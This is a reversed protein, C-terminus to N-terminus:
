RDRRGTGRRRRSIVWVGITALLGASAPEPASTSAPTVSITDVGIYDSNDGSPGGDEVFYRFALRGTGSVPSQVTFQTWTSPYSGGGTLKYTPNIDLLTTTFVGVSTSTTGVDTSSGSTSLNLQLRDAFTPTDVTRTYFSIVDGVSLTMVPTILWNSLTATGSGSAADVAAYTSGSQAPFSSRYSVPGDTWSNQGVPDSNNVVSWDGPPNSAINNTGGEFFGGPEDFNESFSAGWAPAAVFLTLALIAFFRV